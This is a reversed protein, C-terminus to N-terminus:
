DAASLLMIAQRSTVNILDVEPIFVVNNVYARSSPVRMKESLAAASQRSALEEADM